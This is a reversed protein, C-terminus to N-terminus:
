QERSAPPPRRRQSRARAVRRREMPAHAGRRWASGYAFEIADAVDADRVRLERVLADFLAPEAFGERANNEALLAVHPQHRFGPRTKCAISFMRRRAALERNVTAPRIPAGTPGHEALRADKYTEIRDPDIDYAPMGAFMTALHRVSRDADRISRKGNIRYDRLYAEALEDFTVREVKPDTFATTGATRLRERLLRRADSERDSGASERIEEGRHYYAIWYVRGRRFLRGQGRM